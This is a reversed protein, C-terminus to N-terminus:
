RRDGVGLAASAQGLIKQQYHGPINAEGGQAAFPHEKYEYLKLILVIEIYKRSDNGYVERPMQDDDETQGRRYAERQVQRGGCTTKDAKLM